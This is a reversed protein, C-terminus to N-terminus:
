KYLQSHTGLIEFILIKNGEDDFYESYLARWDGTINISRYGSMKGILQHNNLFPNFPNETFLMYRNRVAIKIDLPAKRLQKDFRKSFNILLIATLKFNYIIVIVM